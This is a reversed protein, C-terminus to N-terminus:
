VFLAYDTGVPEQNSNKTQPLRLVDGCAADNKRLGVFRVPPMTMKKSVQWWPTPWLEDTATQQM